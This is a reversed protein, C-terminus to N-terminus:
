LTRIMLPTSGESIEFGHKTYFSVKDKEEAMILLYLYGEYHKKLRHLLERGIGNGHYAPNVLLYHAYATMESDDLANVLGILKDKDWASIVTSSNKMAKKLRNPYKGSLWNVSLFLAELEKITFNKTTKYIIDMRKERGLCYRVGYM